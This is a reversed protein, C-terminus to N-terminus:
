GEAIIYAGQNVMFADGRQCPWLLEITSKSTIPQKQDAHSYGSVM